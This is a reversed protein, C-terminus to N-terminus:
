SSPPSASGPVIEGSVPLPESLPEACFGSDSAPASESEPEPEAPIIRDLAMMATPVM